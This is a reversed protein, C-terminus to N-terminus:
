NDCCCYSETRDRICMEPTVVCVNKESSLSFLNKQSLQRARFTGIVESSDLCVVTDIEQEYVYHNAHSAAAIDAMACEHKMRTIDLYQRKYVDRNGHDPRNLLIKVIRGKPTDIKQYIVPGNERM